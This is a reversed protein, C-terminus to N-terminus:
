ERCLDNIPEGWQQWREFAKRAADRKSIGHEMCHSPGDYCGCRHEQHPVSGVVSFIFCEIHECNGNGHSVGDEGPKIPEACWSCYNSDPKQTWHGLEFLPAFGRYYGFFKM